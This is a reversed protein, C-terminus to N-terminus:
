SKLNYISVTGIINKFLMTLTLVTTISNTSTQILTLLLLLFSLKFSFTYYKGIVILSFRIVFSTNKEVTMM